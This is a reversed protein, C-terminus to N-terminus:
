KIRNLQVVNLEYGKKLHLLYYNSEEEHIPAGVDAAKRPSQDTWFLSETARQPAM